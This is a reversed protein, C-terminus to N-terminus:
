RPKEDKKAKRGSNWRKWIKTNDLLAIYCLFVLSETRLRLARAVASFDSSRREDFAFIDPIGAIVGVASAPSLLLTRKVGHLSLLVRLASTEFDKLPLEESAGFRAAPSKSKFPLRTPLIGRNRKDLILKKKLEISTFQSNGTGRRQDL